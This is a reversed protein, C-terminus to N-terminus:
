LNDSFVARIERKEHGQRAWKKKKKAQVAENALSLEEDLDAPDFNRLRFTAQNRRSLTKLGSGKGAISSQESEISRNDDGNRDDWSYRVELGLNKAMNQDKLRAARGDSKGNHDSSRQHDKAWRRSTTRGMKNHKKEAAPQYAMLLKEVDQQDKPRLSELRLAPLVVVLIWCPTDTDKITDKVFSISVVSLKALKRHDMHEEGKAKEKALQSKFELLDFVKMPSNLTLHGMNQIVEKSICHKHPEFCGKVIVDNRSLRTVWVNGEQDVDLQIGKGIHDRVKATQQDRAANKLAGFGLRGPILFNYGDITVAPSRIAFNSLIASKELFHIKAWAEPRLSQLEKLTDNLIDDEIESDHTVIDNPTVKGALAAVQGSFRNRAKIPPPARKRYQPKPDQKGDPSHDVGNEVTAKARFAAANQLDMYLADKQDERQKVKDQKILEDLANSIFHSADELPWLFTEMMKEETRHRQLMIQFQRRAIVGRAVKQCKIVQVLHDDIMVDLKEAHWYKLFVKTKGVECDTLNLTKLVKKCQKENIKVETTLPFALIKYRKFFEAFMLRVPFGERRIRITELVGNYRLQRLVLEFDFYNHEASTNPKLCRIFQPDSSLLKEMLNALSTKFKSGISSFTSARRQYKNKKSSEKMQKQLKKGQARSMSKGRDHLIKPPPKCQLIEKQVISVTKLDTDDHSFFFKVLGNHSNLLCEMLSNSFSDRNKELFGKADYTITGAYHKVGFQTSDARKERVFNKNKQHNTSLKNVFSVDSSKPFRSEEDLLSFLGLPRGILLDLVPQNDQFTINNKKIGERSYEELEWKFIRQNFYFQLQENTLNICLQEFGNFKFNEFGYIDLIGVEYGPTPRCEPDPALLTNIQNVIWNFLKSYLSKALADRMEEAQAVSKLTFIKEGRAEVTNTILSNVLAEADVELLQAVVKIVYEDEIYAGATEQDQSFSIQTTQLIASLMTYIMWIQAQTFGVLEMIDQLDDFMGLCHEFHTKSFYVGTGGSNLIRYSEPPELCINALQQQTLGAFMFYFVHFNREGKVQTVIRSKELLYTDIKGGVVTGDHKFLLELYKGFRSSNDNMVTSANGFAELLPNVQLIKEQLNPKSSSCHSIIHGILYKASETKGAGSEGSIVCSQRRGYRFMASYARDAVAFIHPPLSQRIKFDAYRCSIEFSYINLPKFPNVALLIDGIYTYIQDADYRHAIKELIEPETLASLAALDHLELDTSM